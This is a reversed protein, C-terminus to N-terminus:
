LSSEKGDTDLVRKTKTSESIVLGDAIVRICKGFDALRQPWPYDWASERGPRPKIRVKTM